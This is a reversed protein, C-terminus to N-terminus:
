RFDAGDDVALHANFTEPIHFVFIQQPARRHSQIGRPDVPIQAAFPYEDGAGAAGDARFEAPLYDPEVGLFEDQHIGALLM